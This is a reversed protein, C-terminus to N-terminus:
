TAPIPRSTTTAWAELPRRTPASCGRRYSQKRPRRHRGRTPPSYAVGWTWSLHRPLRHTRCPTQWLPTRSGTNPPHPPTPPMSLQQQTAKSEPEILGTFSQWLRRQRLSWVICGEKGPLCKISRGLGSSAAAAAGPVQWYKIPAVKAVDDGAKYVAAYLQTCPNTRAYARHTAPLGAPTSLAPALFEHSRACTQPGVLGATLAACARTRRRTLPGTPSLAAHAPRRSDSRTCGVQSRLSTKRPGPSPSTRGRSPSSAM